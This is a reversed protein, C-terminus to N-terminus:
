VHLIYLITHVFLKIYYKIHCINEFVTRETREGISFQSVRAAHVQARGLTAM